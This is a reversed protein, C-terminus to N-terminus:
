FGIPFFKEAWREFLVTDIFGNEQFVIEVKENTYGNLLLEIEITKRPVIVFPKLSSRDAAICGLLTARKCQRKTALPIGNGQYQVPVVVMCDKADAWENFGTEDLNFLLCAPVDQINSKLLQFYLDIEKPDSRVRESEMPIGVVTKFNCNTNFMHRITDPLMVYGFEHHIYDQIEYYSLPSNNTFSEM